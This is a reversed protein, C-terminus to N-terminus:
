WTGALLEHLSEIGAHPLACRRGGPPICSIVRKGALLGIVMAMSECGVVVDSAAVEEVLTKAGGVVIPLSFAARACKYRDARESPHPRIVIRAINGGLIAVHTLFFLLADEDTYGWHREDGFLARAQDGVREGVFLVSVGDTGRPRSHVVAALDACVDQLYPNEVLRVSVEPFRARAIAEAYADGVWIQDPVCCEGLRCFRERYNVWHDLFTTCPRGLARALKIATFELDSQWSSGCLVGDAQRVAEEVPLVTVPGLKREFVARAPGTLAYLCALQNRRVFSSLVEAGGADHAVIARM